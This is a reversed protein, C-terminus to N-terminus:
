LGEKYGPPLEQDYRAEGEEYLKDLELQSEFPPGVKGELLHDITGRLSDDNVDPQGEELRKLEQKLEEFVQGIRELWEGPNITSHRKKLELTVLGGKLSGKTKDLLDRVKKFKGIQKAIVGLRNEQYELAAQHPIWLRDSVKELVGLLDDRAETPYRYLNLLMNADLMFVCKEWLESFEEDTPRYYGIFDTKM